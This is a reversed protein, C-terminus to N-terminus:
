AVLWKSSVVLSKVVEGLAEVEVLFGDHGYVSDIECYEAQPIHQALFRQESVPFLVDSSIGIVLTQASITALAAELTETRGRAVNHADMAKSLTWYTYANFRRILKEGQYRQYSSAAFRDTKSMDQDTQTAEYANYNRYSLLAMARAARLGEIGAQTSRRGWTIDAQIAMRQAENFAIGWASHRANTTILVLRDFLSAQELAWELLQQGGLSGGIGLAIREIGLHQRLLDHVRAMDRTTIFPFNGYYVEGTAADASLPGTTGYCGGLVNACVIFHEEPNIACGDGILGQWWDTVDSNATLAHCVWVVNRGDPALNGVTHYAIEIAPLIEGCELQFPQNHLYRKM